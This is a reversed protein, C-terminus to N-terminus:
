NQGFYRTSEAILHSNPTELLELTSHHSHIPQHSHHPEQCLVLNQLDVEQM